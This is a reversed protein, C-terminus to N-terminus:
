IKKLIECLVFSVIFQAILHYLSVQYQPVPFIVTPNPAPAQVNNNQGNKCYTTYKAPVEIHDDDTLDIKVINQDLVKNQRVNEKRKPSKNKIVSTIGGIMNQPLQSPEMALPDPPSLNIVEGNSNVIVKNLIEKPLQQVAKKLAANIMDISYPLQMAQVQPVASPTMPDQMKIKKNVHITSENLNKSCMKPKPPIITSQLVRIQNSKVPGHTINPDLKKNAAQIADTPAESKM